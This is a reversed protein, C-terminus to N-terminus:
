IRLRQSFAFVPPATSRALSAEVPADPASADAHTPAVLVFFDAGNTAFDVLPQTDVLKFDAKCHEHCLATRDESAPSDMDECPPAAIEPLPAGGTAAELLPCAYAATALQAFVLGLLVIWAIPRRRIRTM